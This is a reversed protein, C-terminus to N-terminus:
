EECGVRDEKDEKVLNLPPWPIKRSSANRDKAFRRLSKDLPVNGAIVTNTLRKMGKKWKAKERKENEEIALKNREDRRAKAKLPVERRQIAIQAEALHRVRNAAQQKEGLIEVIEIAPGSSKAAGSAGKGGTAKVDALLDAIVDKLPPPRVLLWGVNSLVIFLNDRTKLTFGGTLHIEPSIPKKLAPIQELSYLTYGLCNVTDANPTRAFYSLFQFSPDKDEERERGNCKDCNCPAASPAATPPPSDSATTQGKQGEPSGEPHPPERQSTDDEPVTSHADSPKLHRSRAANVLSVVPTKTIRPGLLAHAISSYCNDFIASAPPPPPPVLRPPYSM